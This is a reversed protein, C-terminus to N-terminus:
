NVDIYGEKNFIVCIIMMFFSLLFMFEAAFSSHNGFGLRTPCCDGFLFLLVTIGAVGAFFFSWHTVFTGRNEGKLADMLSVTIGTAAGAIIFLYHGMFLLETDANAFKLKFIRERVQEQPTGGKDRYNALELEVEDLTGDSQTLPTMELDYPFKDVPLPLVLISLCSFISLPLVISKLVDIKDKEEAASYVILMSAVSSGFNMMFLISVYSAAKWRQSVMASISSDNTKILLYWVSLSVLLMSITLFLIVMLDSSKGAYSMCVVFFVLCAVILMIALIALMADLKSMPGVAEATHQGTVSTNVMDCARKFKDPKYTAKM